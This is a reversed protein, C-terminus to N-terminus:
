RACLGCCWIMMMMNCRTQNPKPDRGMEIAMDNTKLLKWLMLCCYFHFKKAINEEKKKAKKTWQLKKKNSAAAAQNETAEIKNNSIGGHAQHGYWGCKDGNAVKVRALVEKRIHIRRIRLVLCIEITAQRIHPVNASVRECWIGKHYNCVSHDVYVVIWCTTNVCM